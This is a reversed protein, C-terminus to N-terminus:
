GIGALAISASRMRAIDTGSRIDAWSIWGPAAAATIVLEEIQTALEGRAFGPAYAMLGDFAVRAARKNTPACCPSRTRRM